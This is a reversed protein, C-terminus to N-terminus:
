KKNKSKTKTESKKGISALLSLELEGVRINARNLEHLADFYNNEWYEAEDEWMSSSEIWAEVKEQEQYYFIMTVALMVCAVALFILEM